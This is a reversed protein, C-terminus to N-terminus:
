RGRLSYITDHRIDEKEPRRHGTGKGGAVKLWPRDLTLKRIRYYGIKEGCVKCRKYAPHGDSFYTAKKAKVNNHHSKWLRFANIITRGSLRTTSIALNVTRNEVEEQM